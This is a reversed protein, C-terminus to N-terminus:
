ALYLAQLREREAPGLGYAERLFADVSGHMELAAEFAADIYSRRTELLPMVIERAGPRQRVHYKAFARELEPEVPFYRASLMFDWTVTERPVGLASLLFAVAVGTREKGASCNVLLPGERGELLIRFLRRYEETADRVFAAILFNMTDVVEGPGEAQDFVRDLYGPERIGPPIGLVEVDPDGPLVANENALEEPLRLDCVTRIGLTALCARDTESLASLHGSRFLRGWRVRRGGAGAYGGLDRFNVGRELPVGREAVVLGEGGDPALHFYHREGPALGAVSAGRAARLRPPTGALGEPSGAVRLEVARDGFAESWALRYPGGPQREVEVGCVADM